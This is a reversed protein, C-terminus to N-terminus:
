RAATQFRQALESLYLELDGRLSGTDVDDLPSMASRLADLVLQEKSSWRRYITAKSVKAREAVDDMSMKSVGVEGALELTAALM